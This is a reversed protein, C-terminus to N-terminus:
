GAEIRPLQSPDSEPEESVPQNQSHGSLKEPGSAKMLGKVRICALLARGRANQGIGHTGDKDPGNIFEQCPFLTTTSGKEGLVLNPMAQNKTTIKFISVRLGPAPPVPWGWLLASEFETDSSNSSSLCFPHPQSLIFGDGGEDGFAGCAVDLQLAWRVTSKSLM